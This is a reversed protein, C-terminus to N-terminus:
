VVSRVVPTERGERERFLTKRMKLENERLDIRSEIDPGWDRSRLFARSSKPFDPFFAQWKRGYGTILIELCEM